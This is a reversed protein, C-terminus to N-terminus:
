INLLRLVWMGVVHVLGLLGFGWMVFGCMSTLYNKWFGHSEVALM